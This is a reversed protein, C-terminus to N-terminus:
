FDNFLQLDRQDVAKAPKWDKEPYDDFNKTDGDHHVDPLIPPQLVFIFRNPVSRSVIM